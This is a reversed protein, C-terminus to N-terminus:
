SGGAMRRVAAQLGAKAEANNPDIALARKYADVAQKTKGQKFYANGLMVQYRAIRPSARTAKSLHGAAAGYQGM